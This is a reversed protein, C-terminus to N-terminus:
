ALGDIDDECKDPIGWDVFEQRTIKNWQPFIEMPETGPLVNEIDVDPFDPHEVYVKLGIVDKGNKWHGTLGVIRAEYPLGLLQELLYKSLEFKAKGM